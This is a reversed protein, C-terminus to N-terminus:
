VGEGTPAKPVPYARRFNNNAHTIYNTVGMNSLM